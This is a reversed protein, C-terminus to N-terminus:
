VKGKLRQRDIFAKEILSADRISKRLWELKLEQKETDTLQWLIDPMQRLRNTLFHICLAATVSINFSETFGVMPITMFEDAMELAPQSLGNLESGFLLAIKGKQLDFQDPPCDKKHPSTAVIRYGDKKLQNITDATNDEHLNHRHLTLWKDSGLTIDPSLRYEHQNEIIHIDQIGFGECSRLVASANHPQYIDELVVTIYRTRFNLVTDFLQVRRKSLFQSLYEIRQSIM